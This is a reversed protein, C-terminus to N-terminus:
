WPQRKVKIKWAIWNFTIHIIPTAILLFVISELYPLYFLGAALFAVALFDLQDVILLSAGPAVNIRRKIFSGILDGSMAGISLVLILALNLPVIGFAEMVGPGEPRSQLFLQFLGFAVGFFIGGFTGEITKSDGFIRKGKWSKGIDLPKKGRLLPPFANTAYAPAIFWFAALIIQLIDTM